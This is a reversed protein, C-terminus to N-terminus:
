QIGTTEKKTYFFIKGCLDLKYLEELYPNWMGLGWMQDCPCTGTPLVAGFKNYDKATISPSIETWAQKKGLVGGFEKGQLVESLNGQSCHSFKKLM